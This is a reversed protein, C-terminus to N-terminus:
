NRFKRVKKILEDEKGLLGSLLDAFNSAERYAADLKENSLKTAAQAKAAAEQQAIESTDAEHKKVKLADVKATPDFGKEKLREQSEEILTVMQTIFDRKGAENMKGM